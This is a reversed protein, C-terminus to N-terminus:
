ESVGSNGALQELYKRARHNDPNIMLAKELNRVCEQGKGQKQQVMALNFIAKDHFPPKLEAARHFMEEANAYDQTTAYEFGLNFATKASRPDLDIAKHYSKIAKPHDQSQAYLKGLDFHAEFSQPDVEVAKRLLIVAKNVDKGDFMSAQGRLARSYLAKLEPLDISQLALADKFFEIARSFNKEKLAEKALELSAPKLTESQVAPQTDIPHGSTASAHRQVNASSNLLRDTGNPSSRLAGMMLAAQKQELKSDINNKKFVGKDLSSLGPIKSKDSSPPGFTATLAQGRQTWHTAILARVAPVPQGERPVTDKRFLFVFAMAIVAISVAFVGYLHPRRHVMTPLDIIISKKKAAERLFRGANRRVGQKLAYAVTKAKELIMLMVSEKKTPLTMLYQPSGDAAPQKQFNSLSDEMVEGPLMVEQSCETIIDPTIIKVERSYGTILAHDCILNTLRPSGNTFRYIESIAERNFLERDNGAVKLRHHIYQLTESESLPQIQYNLTIRQRLAHCDRSLLRQNLENQGVFFINILKKEPLEINSILRSQELLKKSLRHAEDIILLARKNDFYTNRLFEKFSVIFEEKKEFKNSLGFSRTILNLFGMLDLNPDTVNAVLTNEDLSELLSNILTTKGTGAAGTLLLFGKENMVGYKLTALAEKHKEGLWLFRPDTSIQFPKEILNYYSTYM